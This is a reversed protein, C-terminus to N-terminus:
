VEMEGGGEIIERIKRLRYACDENIQEIPIVISAWAPSIKNNRFEVHLDFENNTRIIVSVDEWGKDVYESAKRFIEALSSFINGSKALESCVKKDYDVNCDEYESRMEAGIEEGNFVIEIEHPSFIIEKTEEKESGKYRCSSRVKM